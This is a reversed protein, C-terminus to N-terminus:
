TTNDVDDINDGSIKQTFANKIESDSVKISIINQLNNNYKKKKMFPHNRIETLTIRKNPDKNLIKSLLDKEHKKSFPPYHIDNNLINNKIEDFSNGNFPLYGYLMAFLTVGLAWIDIPPGLFDEQLFLEPAFFLLTGTRISTMMTKECLIESVGFDVLFVNDNTDLLINEPKIDRHIINHNHLYQLGATIQFMYNRAKKNNIKEYLYGNKSQKLIPGNNIYDIVLYIKNDNQDDIVEYLSAIYKHKIKKLIAIEKKISSLNDDKFKNLSRFLVKIAYHKNSITDYALYVKGYTGKGIKDMIVYNNLNPYGDNTKSKKVKNTMIIETHEKSDLSSTNFPKKDLSENSSIDLSSSCSSKKSSPSEDDDIQNYIPLKNNITINIFDDKKYLEQCIKLSLRLLEDKQLDNLINAANNLNDINYEKLIKNIKNQLQDDM